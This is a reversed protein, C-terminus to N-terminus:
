RKAVKLQRGTALRYADTPEIQHKSLLRLVMAISIPIESQGSVWRRITRDEVGFLAAIQAKSLGMLERCKEFERGTM